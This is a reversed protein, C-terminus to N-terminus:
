NNIITLIYVNPDMIHLKYKMASIFTIIKPRSEFNSRYQYVNQLNRRLTVRTPIGPLTMPAMEESAM